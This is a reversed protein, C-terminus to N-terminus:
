PDFLPGFELACGGINEGGEVQELAVVDFLQLLLQV